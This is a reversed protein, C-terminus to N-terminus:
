KDKGWHAAILGITGGRLFAFVASAPEPIGLAHVFLVWLVVAPVVWLYKM